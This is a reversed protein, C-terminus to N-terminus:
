RPYQHATGLVLGDDRTSSRGRAQKDVDAVLIPLRYTGDPQVEIGHIETEFAPFQHTLTQSTALYRLLASDDTPFREGPMIVPIGPPYPVIMATSVRGALQEIPVLEITGAVIHEFAAAPTVVPEPLEAYMAGSLETM